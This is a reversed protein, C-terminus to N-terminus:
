AYGHTPFLVEQTTRADTAPAAPAPRPPARRAARRTRAELAIQEAADWDFGRQGDLTETATRDLARATETQPAIRRWRNQRAAHFDIESSCIFAGRSDEDREDGCTTGVPWGKRVLNMVYRELTRRTVRHSLADLDRRIRRFTRAHELGECYRKLYGLVLAEPGTPPAALTPTM